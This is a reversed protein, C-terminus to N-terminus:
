FEAAAKALVGVSAPSPSLPEELVPEDLPVEDVPDEVDAEL